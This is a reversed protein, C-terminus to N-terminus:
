DNKKVQNKIEFILVTLLSTFLIISFALSIKNGVVYSQPKFKFEIKHSGAPVEIGRLVYNCRIIPVEKDDITAKWGKPYYIESFVAFGDTSNTSTYVLKNPQYESLSITGGSINKTKKIQPFQETNIIAYSEPSINKVSNIEEQPSSVLKLSDVFWANGLTNPNNLVNGNYDLMVYKTNLMNLIPTNSFFRAAYETNIVDIPVKQSQFNQVTNRVIYEEKRLTSDILDQIRQLKLGSYGGVLKHYYAPMSNNFPNNLDFVRYNPDDKGNTLIYSDSSNKKFVKELGGKETFKSHNLYKVDITLLDIGIIFLISFSVLTTNKLTKTQYLYLIVATLIMFILSRFWSSIFMSQRDNKISEIVDNLINPSINTGFMRQFTGLDKDSSIAAEKMGYHVAAVTMILYSISLLVNASKKISDTNKIKGIIYTKKNIFFGLGLYIILLIIPTFLPIGGQQQNITLSQYDAFMYQAIGISFIFVLSSITTLYFLHKKDLGEKFLFNNLGIGALLVLGLITLSLSMSVTRFKNFMPFYDFLFYNFLQFNKGLAILTLFLISIGIAWKEKNSCTIFGLIALFIITIGAYVPGGTFPQDGWYTPAQETINNINNRPVGLEKLKEGFHSDAGINEGSAGGYM